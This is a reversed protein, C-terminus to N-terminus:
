NQKEDEDALSDPVRAQEQKSHHSGFIHSMIETYTESHSLRNATVVELTCSPQQLSIYNRWCFCRGDAHYREACRRAQPHPEGEESLARM